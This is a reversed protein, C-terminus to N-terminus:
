HRHARIADASTSDWVENVMARTGKMDSPLESRQIQQVKISYAKGDRTNSVVRDQENIIRDLELDMGYVVGDKAGNRYGVKKGTSYGIALTSIAATAIYACIVIKEENRKFFEKIKGM